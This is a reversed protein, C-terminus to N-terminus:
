KHYAKAPLPNTKLSRPKFLVAKIWPQFKIELIHSLLVSVVLVILIRVIFSFSTGSFVTVQHLVYMIPFHVLYLAYSIKGLLAAKGFSHISVKIPYTAIALGYLIIKSQWFPDTIRGSLMLYAFFLLPLLFCYIKLLRIYQIKREAVESIILICVPFVSILDSLHVKGASNEELGVVNLIVRGLQLNSLAFFLFLYSILSLRKKGEEEGEVSPQEALLMGSLWFILGTAYSSALSPIHSSVWGMVSIISCIVLTSYILKRSKNFAWFFLFLLYYIVEYNLSWVPSNGVISPVALEQLFLFNGTIKWLTESYVMIGLLVGVFYIPYLRIWRRRLYSKVNVGNFSLQNTLGIVYGSLIFFILVASHGVSLFNLKSINYTPDLFYEIGCCHGLVVILAAIGRLGELNYNYKVTSKM